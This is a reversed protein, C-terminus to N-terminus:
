KVEVELVKKGQLYAELTDGGAKLVDMAKKCANRGNASSIVINKPAAQMAQAAIPTAATSLLWDRRRM